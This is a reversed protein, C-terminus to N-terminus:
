FPSNIASQCPRCFRGGDQADRPCGLQGCTGGAPIPRRVPLPTDRWEQRFREWRALANTIWKM